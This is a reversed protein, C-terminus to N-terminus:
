LQELEEDAEDAVVFDREDEEQQQEAEGSEEEDGEYRHCVRYDRGYNIFIEDDEAIDQTAVLYTVRQRPDRRLRPGFYNPNAMKASVERNYESDAFSLMANPERSDNAYGGGGHGVLEREPARIRQGNPLFLADIANYGCIHGAVHSDQGEGRRANAEQWDIIEGYYETIPEGRRFARKAFLGRGANPITSTRIEVGKGVTALQARVEELKPEKKSSGGRGNAVTVVTGGGYYPDVFPTPGGVYVPGVPLFRRRFVRPFGRRFYRRRYRRRRPGYIYPGPEAYVVGPAGYVVPPALLGVGAGVGLGLGFGLGAGLGVGGIGRRGFGIGRGGFGRRSM